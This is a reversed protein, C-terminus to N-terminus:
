SIWSAAEWRLRKWEGNELAFASWFGQGCLGGCFHTAYVLAVTHSSNFYVESFGYLAPAGKYKDPRAKGLAVTARFEAQEDANLLRVPATLHWANPDLAIRDHCHVDFDELIEQFDQRRDEPPHVDEHPNM